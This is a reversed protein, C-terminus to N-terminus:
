VCLSFGLVAGCAINNFALIICHHNTLGPESLGSIESTRVFLEPVSKRLM